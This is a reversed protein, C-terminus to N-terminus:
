AAGTLGIVYHIAAKGLDRSKMHRALSFVLQNHTTSFSRLILRAWVGPM